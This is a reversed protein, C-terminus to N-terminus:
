SSAENMSAYAARALDALAKRAEDTLPRDGNVSLTIGDGV